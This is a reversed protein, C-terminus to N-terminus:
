ASTMMGSPPNLVAASSMTAALIRLRSEYASGSWGASSSCAVVFGFKFSDCTAFCHFAAGSIAM